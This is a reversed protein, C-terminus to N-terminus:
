FVNNHNKPNKLICVLASEKKKGNSKKIEFM